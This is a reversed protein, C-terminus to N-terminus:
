GANTDPILEYAQAIKGVISKLADEAAELQAVLHFQTRARQLNHGEHQTKFYHDGELHDTLFRVGIIYPLLLVGEVLSFVEAPTLFKAAHSFYGETYAEFFPVNLTIKSLDSEDEAASNIITRIADGFDYAAYGPMVTDLDIVCQARDQEDLLVNNFKTDNHTIRLPLEGQEGMRLITHMREARALAFAIMDQCDGARGVADAEIARQLAGLRNGIHHFGPLVEYIREADMDALMLQFLGFARGGERAQQESTVIDYSRTNELLLFMRWYNGADDRHFLGGERTSVITLVNLEPDGDGSATIKHKLHETVLRMNEMLKGVEPFVKHNIRQMLYPPQSADDGWVRYTDNIHGSGFARVYRPTAPVDFAGAAELLSSTDSM